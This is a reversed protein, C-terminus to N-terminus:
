ESLGEAEFAESESAYVRWRICKDRRFRSVQWITADIPTDSGVGRGTSSLVAVTAAGVQSMQVIRVEFDPFTDLLNAWWRRIGEHGQYRGEMAALVPAAEVEEDMVALLADLDRDNIAQVARRVLEESM